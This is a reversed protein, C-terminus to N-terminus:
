RVARSPIIAPTEYQRRRRLGIPNAAVSAAIRPFQALLPQMAM